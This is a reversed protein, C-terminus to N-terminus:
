FTMRICDLGSMDGAGWGKFLLRWIQEVLLVNSMGFILCNTICPLFPSYGPGTLAAEAASGLGRYLNVALV